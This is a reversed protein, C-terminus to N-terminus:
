HAALREVAVPIDGIRPMGVHPDAFDALTLLRSPPSGVERFADDTEPPGGYAFSMAVLGRRLNPEAEVIARIHSRRSSITVPDGPRLALDALDEPHMYAPNHFRNRNMIPDNLTSNFQNQERIMILRFPFGHDDEAADSREVAAALDGMMSSNAIDFRGSWGDQKAGVRLSPSPFTSGSPHRKVEDLPVRSGVALSALSEEATPKNVMDVKIGVAPADPTVSMAGLELPVGLERALDYAFEWEPLVDSGAPPDVVADTYQAWAEAPGYFTPTNIIHDQLLTMGPTEYPLPPAIVYHAERATPTMFPDVVVLLELDRLAELVRTQDPWSLVPNGGVCILARVKKHGQQLIEEALTGTPLGASTQTLGAFGMEIGLGWAPKPSQAQAFYPGAPLLTPVRDVVEGARLWHGTLTELVLVLYEVLTSSNSFGPGVGCAIYGRGARAFRRALEVLSEPAVDAWGAVAEPTCRAVARRLDELGEANEAVFEHDILDEALLVHILCALIEVDHGPRPQLHLSARKAVDSRRPDIVLLEMGEDLRQSLWRGPNGAAAGYYTRYPNAGILLAVDPDQYGQLPAMWAGHLARALHRGPKDISNPSFRMPSGVARMLAGFFPDTLPSQAVGTAGYYAVSRPGHTDIITRLKAAIEATAADAGVRVFGDDVRKLHHLVRNPHAHLDPQARGKICTYGDWIDNTKDGRVRLLRGYEVEVITPCSNLCARCFSRVETV